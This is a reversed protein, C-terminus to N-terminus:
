TWTHAFEWAVGAGLEYLSDRRRLIWADDLSDPHYHITDTNFDNWEWLGSAFAGLHDNFTYDAGLTAGYFGSSGDPRATAYQYGGHVGASM